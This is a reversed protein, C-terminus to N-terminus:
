LFVGSAKTAGGDMVQRAKIKFAPKSPPLATGYPVYTNFLQQGGGDLLTIWGDDGRQARQAQRYFTALDGDDLAPAGALVQLSAETSYLDRDVLRSVSQATEQLNQLAATRGANELMRLAVASSVVVPTLIALAMVILYSRIRM